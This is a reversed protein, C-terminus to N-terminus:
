EDDFHGMAAAAEMEVDNADTALCVAGSEERTQMLSPHSKLSSCQVASTTVLYAGRLMM